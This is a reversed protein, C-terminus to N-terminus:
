RRLESVVPAAATLRQAGSVVATAQRHSAEWRMGAVAPGSAAILCGLVLGVTALVAAFAARLDLRDNM